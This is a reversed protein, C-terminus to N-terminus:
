AARGRVCTVAGKRRKQFYPKVIECLQDSEAATVSWFVLRGDRELNSGRALSLYTVSIPADEFLMEYRSILKDKCSVLNFTCEKCTDLLRKWTAETQEKCETENAMKGFLVMDIKRGSTDVQLRIEAFSPNTIQVPKRFHDYGYYAAVGVAVIATIAKM